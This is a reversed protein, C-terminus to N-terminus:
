KACWALSYYPDAVHNAGGWSVAYTQGSAAHVFTIEGAYAGATATVANTETTQVSYADPNVSTRLWVQVTTAADFHTSANATFTIKSKAPITPNFPSREVVPITSCTATISVQTASSAIAGSRSGGTMVGILVAGIVVVGALAGIIGIRRTRDRSGSTKVPEESGMGTDPRTDTM